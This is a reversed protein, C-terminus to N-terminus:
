VAHHFMPEPGGRYESLVVIDADHRKLRFADFRGALAAQLPEFGIKDVEVVDVTDIRGHRDFVGHARHALEDALAFNAMGADTLRTRRGDSSCMGRVWEASHLDLIRQPGAVDLGFNQREARFEAGAKDGVAREPATKQSAIDGINRRQTRAIRPAVHRPKLAVIQAAVEPQDLLQLLMSCGLVAGRGLERDGPNQRAPVVDHRDRAGAM